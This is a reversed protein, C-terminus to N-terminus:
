SAADVSGQGKDAFETAVETMDTRDVDRRLLLFAIVASAYVLNVAFAALLGWVLMLWGRVLGSAFWSTGGLRSADFAGYFPVAGSPAPATWIANLKDPAGDAAGETLVPSGLNMTAGVA